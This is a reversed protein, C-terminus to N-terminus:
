HAQKKKKRSDWTIRQQAIDLRFDRVHASRSTTKLLACGSALREPIRMIRGTVSDDFCEPMIRTVSNDLCETRTGMGKRCTGLFCVSPRTPHTAHVKTRPDRVHSDASAGKDGVGKLSEDVSCCGSATKAQGRRTLSTLLRTSVKRFRPLVGTVSRRTCSLCPGNADDTDDLKTSGETSETSALSAHSSSHGLTRRHGDKLQTPREAM